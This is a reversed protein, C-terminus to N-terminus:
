KPWPLERMTKETLDLYHHYIRKESCRMAIATQVGINLHALEKQNKLLQCDDQYSTTFAALAEHCKKQLLRLSMLDIAADAAAEDGSDPRHTLRYLFRMDNLYSHLEAHDHLSLEYNYETERRRLGLARLDKAQIRLPVTDQPNDPLVFGYNVFYRLNSKQGYSICVEEGPAFDRRAELVFARDANAYFWRTGPAPAHNLMDALPIMASVKIGNIDLSFVRTTIATRAWLFEKFKFKRFSPVGECIAKYDQHVKKKTEGTLPLAQSGQLEKLQARNFFLPVTPFHQPLSQLYPQWFSRKKTREVLLFAALTSHSSNLEIDVNQIQRGIPSQEALLSTQLSKYPITLIKEGASIRGNCYVGRSNQRHFGLHIPLNSIVDKDLWKILDM